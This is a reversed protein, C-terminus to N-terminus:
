RRWAGLGPVGRSVQVELGAELPHLVMDAGAPGVAPRDRLIGRFRGTAPDRLLAATSAGDRDVITAGGPGSLTIRALADARHPRVPVAFAFSAGGYGDAIEEMDFSFSFVQSGHEDSGLIRYAGGGGSLAPPAEVIFAPELYLAGDPNVGGWLFLSTEGAAASSSDSESTLRYGM